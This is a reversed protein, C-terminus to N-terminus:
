IQMWSTRAWIENKVPIRQWTLHNSHLIRHMAGNLGVHSILKLHEFQAYKAENQQQIEGEIASVMKNPNLQAEGGGKRKWNMVAYWLIRDIHM